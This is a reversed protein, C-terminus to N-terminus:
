VVELQISRRVDGRPRPYTATLGENNDPSRTVQRSNWVSPGDWLIAIAGKM